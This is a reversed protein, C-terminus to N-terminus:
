VPPLGFLERLAAIISDVDVGEGRLHDRLSNYEPLTHLTDVIVQPNLLANM